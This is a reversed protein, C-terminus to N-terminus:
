KKVNEISDNECFVLEFFSIIKNVDLETKCKTIEGKIM